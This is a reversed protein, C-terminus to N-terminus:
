DEEDSHINRYHQVVEQTMLCSQGIQPFVVSFVQTAEEWPFFKVNFIPYGKYLINNVKQVYEEPTYPETHDINFRKEIFKRDIGNINQGWHPAFSIVYLGEITAVCHFITNHGLQQYGLYDTSSPWAKEVNHRVYAEHPHSHFNYRTANVDVNEEEGSQISDKDVDILYVIGDDDRKVVDKVVLEGTIEKQSKKGKKVVIGLKSAERLFKIAVKTFQAKLSCVSEDRQELIHQVSNIVSQDNGKQPSNTRILAIGRDIDEFQPNVQTVYPHDFGNNSLLQIQDDFNQNSIPICIWLSTEIPFGSFCSQLISQLHNICDSPLSCIERKENYQIFYHAQVSNVFETGGIYEIRKAGKPLQSLKTAVNKDVILILGNVFGRSTRPIPQVLTILSNHIDSSVIRDYDVM